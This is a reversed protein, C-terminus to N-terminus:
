KLKDIWRLIEDDSPNRLKKTNITITPFNLKGNSYLSRLETAFEENKEVDLFQFEENQEKLFRLYHQTKHCRDAGYVKITM